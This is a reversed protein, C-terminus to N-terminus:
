AWPEAETATIEFHTFREKQFLSLHKQCGFGQVKSSTKWTNEAVGQWKLEKDKPEAHARREERARIGVMQRCFFNIKVTKSNGDYYLGYTEAIQQPTMEILENFEAKRAERIMRIKDKRGMDKYSAGFDEKLIADLDELSLFDLKTKLKKNRPSKVKDLIQVLKVVGTMGTEGEDERFKEEMSNLFADLLPYKIDNSGSYNYQVISLRELKDQVPINEDGFMDRYMDVIGQEDYDGLEDEIREDIIWPLIQYRRTDEEYKKERALENSKKQEAEDEKKLKNNMRKMTGNKDENYKGMFKKKEADRDFWRPENLGRMKITVNKGDLQIQAKGKLDSYEGLVEDTIYTKTNETSTPVSVTFTLGKEYEKKSLAYGTFHNFWKVDYDAPVVLKVNFSREDDLDAGDDNDTSEKIEFLPKTGTLTKVKELLLFANVWSVMNKNKIENDSQNTNFIKGTYHCDAVCAFKTKFVGRDPHKTFELEFRNKVLVDLNEKFEIGLDNNKYKQKMLIEEEPSTMDNDKGYKTNLALKVKDYMLRAAVANLDDDNVYQLQKCAVKRKKNTDLGFQDYPRVCVFNPKEADVEKRKKLEEILKVSESEENTDYDGIFDLISLVMPNNENSIPKTDEDVSM